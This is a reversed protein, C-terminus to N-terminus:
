QTSTRKDQGWYLKTRLTNFYDYDEPHILKIFQSSVKITLTDESNLESFTDKTPDEWKLRIAIQEGNNVSTFNIIDIANRRASLPRLVLNTTKVGSWIPSNIDTTIEFDKRFSYIDTEFEGKKADGRWINFKREM